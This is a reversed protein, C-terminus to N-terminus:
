GGGVKRWYLTTPNDLSQVQGFTDTPDATGSTLQWLQFTGGISSLLFTLVPVGTTVVAELATPVGRLATLIPNVIVGPVGVFGGIAGTASPIVVVPERCLVSDQGSSTVRVEFFANLFKLGTLAATLAASAVSMMFQVVNGSSVGLISALAYITAQGDTIAVVRSSDIPLAITPNTVDGTETVCTLVGSFTDGQVFPPVTLPDTLFVGKIPRRQTSSLVLNFLQM